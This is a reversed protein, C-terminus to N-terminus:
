GGVLRIAGLKGDLVSGALEAPKHRLVCELNTIQLNHLLVKSLGGILRTKSKGKAPKVTNESQAVVGDGDVLNNRREIVHQLLSKQVLGDEGEVQSVRVLFAVVGLGGEASNVLVVVGTFQGLNREASLRVPLNIEIGNSKTVVDSLKLVGTDNEVGASRKNGERGSKSVQQLNDFHTIM